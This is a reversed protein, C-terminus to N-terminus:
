ITLLFHMSPLSKLIFDPAIMQNFDLDELNKIQDWVVNTAELSFALNLKTSTYQM